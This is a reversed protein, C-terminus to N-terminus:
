RDGHRAPVSRRRSQNRQTDIVATLVFIGIAVIVFAPPVSV